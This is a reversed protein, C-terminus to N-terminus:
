LLLFTHSTIISIRPISTKPRSYENNNQSSWADGWFVVATFVASLGSGGLALFLLVKHLVPHAHNDFVTLAIQCPSALIAFVIALVSFVKKYKPPSSQQQQAQNHHHSTENSNSGHHHYHHHYHYHVAIITALLCVSTLTGGSIFLPQLRFAGIDSIFSKQIDSSDTRQIKSQFSSSIYPFVYAVYPNSQGPYRPRGEALWYILLSLLTIFWATAAILPLLRLQHLPIPPTKSKSNSSTPPPPSM